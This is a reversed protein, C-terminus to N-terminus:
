LVINTPFLPPSTTPLPPLFFFPLFHSDVLPLFSSLLFSLTPSLFSSPDSPASSTVQVIDERHGWPRGCPQAAISLRCQTSLYSCIEISICSCLTALGPPHSYSVGCLPLSFLCVLVSFACNHFYHFILPFFAPFMVFQHCSHSLYTRGLM